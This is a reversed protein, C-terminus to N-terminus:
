AQCLPVLFTKSDILCETYKSRNKLISMKQLSIRMTYLNYTIKIVQTSNGSIRSKTYAYICHM